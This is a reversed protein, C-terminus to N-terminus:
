TEVTLPDMQTRLRMEHDTPAPAPTWATPNELDEFDLMSEHTASNFDSTAAILVRAVENATRASALPHTKAPPGM